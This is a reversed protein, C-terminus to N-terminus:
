GVLSPQPIPLVPDAAVFHKEILDPIDDPQVRKYSTKDIVLNPGAKCQKMCGTKKITVREELGRDRLEEALVNCVQMAGKQCCDSKGCVLICAKSQSKQTQTAQTQAPQTQTAQEPSKASPVGGIPAIADAKFEITGKKWDLVREGVAEVWIGPLLVQGISARLHKPVKVCCEGEATALRLYKIKYSDQNVFGLFRGQLRFESVQAKKYKSM